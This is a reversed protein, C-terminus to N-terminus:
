DILKKVGSELFSNITVGKNFHTKYKVWYHYPKARGNDGLITYEIQIISYFSSISNSAVEIFEPLDFPKTLDANKIKEALPVNLDGFNIGFLEYVHGFNLYFQINSNTTNEEGPFIDFNKWERNEVFVGIPIPKSFDIDKSAKITLNTIRAPVPGYNTLSINSVFLPELRDEDAMFRAKDTLKIAIPSVKIFPRNRLDFSEKQWFIGMGVFLMALFAVLVSPRIGWPRKFACFIVGMVVLGMLLSLSFSFVGLLYLTATTLTGAFIVIFSKKMNQGMTLM